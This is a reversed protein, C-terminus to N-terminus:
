VFYADIEIKNNISNMKNVKMGDDALQLRIERLMDEPREDNLFNFINVGMTPKQKYDGSAALIICKQNQEISDEIKFDGDVIILDNDNNLLIDQVKRM